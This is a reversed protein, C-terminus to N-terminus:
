LRGHDIWGCDRCSNECEGLIAIFNLGDPLKMQSLFVPRGRGTEFETM